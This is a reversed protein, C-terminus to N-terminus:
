KNCGGRKSGCSASGSGKRVTSKAKVVKSCYEQERQKKIKQLGKGCNKIADDVAKKKAVWSQLACWKKQLEEGTKKSETILAEITKKDMQYLKGNFSFLPLSMNAYDKTSLEKLAAQEEPSLLSPLKGSQYSGVPLGRMTEGQNAVVVTSDCGCGGM